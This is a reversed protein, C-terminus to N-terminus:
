EENNIEILASELENDTPSKYHWAVSNEMFSVGKGKITNAVIAKPISNESLLAKQIQKHDHGDVEHVFFGFSSM